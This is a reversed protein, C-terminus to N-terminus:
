ANTEAKFILGFYVLLFMSLIVFILVLFSYKFDTFLTLYGTLGIAVWSYIMTSWRQTLHARCSPCIFKNKWKKVHAEKDKYANYENRTKCVPCPIINKM